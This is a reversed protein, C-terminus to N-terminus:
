SNPGIGHRPRRRLVVLFYDGLHRFPFRNRVLRDAVELLPVVRGPAPVHRYFDYPPLAVSLGRIGEVDFDQAFSRVFPRASYARVPLGFRSLDAPVPARLRALARGPRGRLAYIALETLCVRNWVAFVAPAGSRLLRGLSGSVRDLSPELNLAGFDSFAGDFAAEGFETALGGVDSARLKRVDVRETLGEAAAKARLRELMRASLDTAVVHIGRRALPLTELGTGCGMELVVQGPRFTSLLVETSVERPYRNLPNDAVAADYTSASADFFAEVAEAEDIPRGRLVFVLPENGFWRRVQQRGFRSEFRSLVASLGPVAHPVPSADGAFEVEGIRWRASPRALLGRAWDPMPDSRAVVLIDGAQDLYRLPVGRAEGGQPDIPLLHLVPGEASM